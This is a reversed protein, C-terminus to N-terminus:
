RGIVMFRDYKKGHPKTGAYMINKLPLYSVFEDLNESCNIHSDVSFYNNSQLCVMTKKDKSDLTMILDDRDIHECATCIVCDHDYIKKEFFMDLGDRTKFTADKVIRQGIKKCVPDLDVNEISLRIDRDRLIASQLGYWGGLIVIRTVVNDLLPILEDALWLKNELQGDHVSHILDVIRFLDIDPDKSSEYYLEEITKIISKYFNEM